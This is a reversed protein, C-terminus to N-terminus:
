AKMTSQNKKSLWTMLMSDLQTQMDALKTREPAFLGNMLPHDAGVPIVNTKDHVIVLLDRIDQDNDMYTRLSADSWTPTSRSTSPTHTPISPSRKSTSATQDSPSTPAMIGPNQQEVNPKTMPHPNTTASHASNMNYNGIPSVRIDSDPRGQNAAQNDLPSISRHLISSQATRSADEESDSEDIAFREKARKSYVAKVPAETMDQSSNKSRLAGAIPAFVSRKDSPAAKVPPQVAEPTTNAAPYQITVPAIAPNQIFGPGPQVQPQPQPQPQPQMNMMLNPTEKVPSRTEAPSSKPSQSAPNVKQLKGPKRESGLDSDMSEKSQPSRNSDESIRDAEDADQKGAKNGKDKRKFLGSLMGKKEKKKGDKPKEEGVVKDFTDLSPRQKSEQDTPVVNASDGRLLHPTLSIKKTEVSDDKFFSDTNRVVGKRSRQFDDQPSTPASGSMKADTKAPSSPEDDETDNDSDIRHITASVPQVRQQESVHNNQNATQGYDGQDLERNNQTQQGQQSEQMTQQSSRVSSADSTAVLTEEDDVDEEEDSWVQEDPEYYTPPAFNVTKANRRRMAKKLPNKSKEPNDGLM